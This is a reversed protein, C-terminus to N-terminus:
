VQDDENYHFIEELFATADKSSLKFPNFKSQGTYQQYIREEKETISILQMNWQSWNRSTIDSMKILQVGHHRDDATIINYLESVQLRTGELAQLFYGSNFLLIGTIGKETNNNQAVALINKLEAGDVYKNKLSGYILRVLTQSDDM